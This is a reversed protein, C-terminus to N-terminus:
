KKLNEGNIVAINIGKDKMVAEIKKRHENKQKQDYIALGAQLGILGLSLVPVAVKLINSIGM